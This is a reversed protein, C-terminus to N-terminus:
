VDAANVLGERGGAGARMPPLYSFLFREAAGARGRPGRAGARRKRKEAARMYCSLCVSTRFSPDAPLNLGIDPSAVPSPSFLGFLWLLYTGEKGDCRAVIIRNRSSLTAHRGEWLCLGNM